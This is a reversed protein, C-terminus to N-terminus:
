EIKCIIELAKEIIDELEKYKNEIDSVKDM